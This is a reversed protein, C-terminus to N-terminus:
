KQYSEIPIEKASKKAAMILEEESEYRHDKLPHKMPAFLGYDAPAVDPSYPPHAMLTWGMQGIKDRTAQASHPRANDHMFIVGKALKGPRKRRLSERVRELLAGYFASTVTHGRPLWDIHVVGDCDFFVTAMSKRGHIDTLAPRPPAEMGEVRWYRAGMKDLPYDQLFWSEDATLLREFFTKGLDRIFQLNHQSLELRTDKNHQTLVHPVWRLCIKVIQMQKLVNVVTGYSMGTAAEISRITVHADEEIM